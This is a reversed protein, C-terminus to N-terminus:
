DSPWQYYPHSFQTQTSNTGPDPAQRHLPHHCEGAERWGPATSVTVALTTMDGTGVAQPQTVGGM